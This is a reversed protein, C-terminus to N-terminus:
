IITCSKSKSKKKKKKDKKSSSGESGEAEPQAVGEKAAPEAAVEEKKVAPKVETASSRLNLLAWGFASTM